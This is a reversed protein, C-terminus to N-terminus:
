SYTRDKWRIRGTLKRRVSDAALVAGVSYGLPFLLGYWIPIEFFAAGALHLGFASLSAPAALALAVCGSASRGCAFADVAPLVPAAWALVLAIAAAAATRFPGGLMDCLNKTVGVWLTGWGKYMRTSFRRTGGYLATKLGRRKALKALAVDECIDARVAAHGGIERYAAAPMLLFQGTAAVCRSGPANVAALNQIFALLYFGCPMVLREAFSVLRQRPTLSLFGIGQEVALATATRMLDPGAEIDADPFCLWESNLAAEAGIWCAHTKGTWGAPLPPARLLRVRGGATWNAILAATGDTSADDVAVISLREPPYRQALLSGLCRDINAAENRAPVIVTVKPTVAGGHPVAEQFFRRQRLARGVLIAVAILWALSLVLM